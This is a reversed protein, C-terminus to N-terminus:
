WLSSPIHTYSKNEQFKTGDWGWGFVKSIEIINLSEEFGQSLHSLWLFVLFKLLKSIEYM